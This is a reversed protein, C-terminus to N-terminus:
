TAAVPRAPTAGYPRIRMSTLEKRKVPLMMGFGLWPRGSSGARRQSGASSGTM